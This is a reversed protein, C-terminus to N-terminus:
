GRLKEFFVPSADWRMGSIRKGAVWDDFKPHSAGDDAVGPEGFWPATAADAKARRSVAAGTDM